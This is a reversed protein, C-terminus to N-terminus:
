HCFRRALLERGDDAAYAMFYECTAHTQEAARQIHDLEVVWALTKETPRAGGSTLVLRGLTIHVASRETRLLRATSDSALRMRVRREGYGIRM